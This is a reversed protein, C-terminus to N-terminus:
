AELSPLKRGGGLVWDENAEGQCLRSPLPKAWPTGPSPGLLAPAKGSKRLYLLLAGSPGAPLESGLGGLRSAKGLAAPLCSPHDQTSSPLKPLRPCSCSAQARPKQNWDSGRLPVPHPVSAFPGLGQAGWAPLLSPCPSLQGWARAATRVHGAWPHFPKSSHGLYTELGPGEPPGVRSVCSQAPDGPQHRCSTHDKLLPSGGPHKETSGGLAM